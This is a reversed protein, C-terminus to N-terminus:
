RPSIGHTFCGSLIRHIKLLIYKRTSEWATLNRLTCMEGMTFVPYPAISLASLHQHKNVWYLASAAKWNDPKEVYTGGLWQADVPMIEGANRTKQAREVSEPHIFTSIGDMNVVGKILHQNNKTGILAALQGWRFM